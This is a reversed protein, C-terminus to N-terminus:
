YGGGYSGGGGGFGGGSSPVASTGQPSDSSQPISQNSGQNQGASFDQATPTSVSLVPETAQTTQQDGGIPKQREKKQSDAEDTELVIGPLLGLTTGVNDFVELQQIAITSDLLAVTSAADIDIIFYRDRMPLTMDQAITFSEGSAPVLRCFLKRTTNLNEIDQQSIPQWSSSDDKAPKKNGTFNFEEPPKYVEIQMIMGFNFLALPYRSTDVNVGKSLLTLYDFYPAMDESQFNTQYALKLANPFDILNSSNSPYSKRLDPSKILNQKQSELLKKFVEQTLLQGDSYDTALSLQEKVPEAFTRVGPPKSFGQGYFKDVLASDHLLLGYDEFIGKYAERSQFDAETPLTYTVGPADPDQNFFGQFQISGVGINLNPTFVADKIREYAQEYELMSLFVRENNIDDFFTESYIIDRPNLQSARNIGEDGTLNIYNAAGPRFARYAYKDAGAAFQIMSPSIFTYGTQSFNVGTSSNFNEEGRATQSYKISELKLRDVFDQKNLRKIGSSLYKNEGYFTLYDVFVDDNTNVEFLEAFKHSDSITSIVPSTTTVANLNYENAVSKNTLESRSMKKNIQLFGGIARIVTDAFKLVKSIGEPSGSSSDILNLISNYEAQNLKSIELLQDIASIKIVLNRPATANGGLYQEVIQPFVPSFSNDVYHQRSLEYYTNTVSRLEILENLRNQLFAYTGDVFDIEIEYEYIGSNVDKIQKDTFTFYRQVATNSLQIEALGTNQNPTMFGSTDHLTGITVPVDEYATDNMYVETTAGANHRKVRKRTLKLELIKSYSLVEEVYGKMTNNSNNNAYYIAPFIRSNNMLFSLTNIFFVGRAANHGDNSIYLKSFESDNDYYKQGSTLYSLDSGEGFKSIYKKALKDYPSIFDESITVAATSLGAVDDLDSIETLKRLDQIKYNQIQQLSLRPQEQDISHKQGTMWGKNEGYTGDGAYGSPDPNIDSAHLHVSGEWLRGDPLFFAERTTAPQGDEFIIETNIPGEFIASELLEDTNFNVDNLVQEVFEKTDIMCYTLIGYNPKQEVTWSFTFPIVYYPKGYRIEERVKGTQKGDLLSDEGSINGLSSGDSLRIRQGEILQPTFIDTNAPVIAFQTSGEHSFKEMRPLAGDGAYQEAVYVNKVPDQQLPLNSPKLVSIDNTPLIQIYIHDMLSKGAIKFNNIFSSNNLTNSNQLVELNLTIKVKSEDAVDSEIQINKCYVHPLLGSGVVLDEVTSM